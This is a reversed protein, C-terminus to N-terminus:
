LTERSAEVELHMGECSAGLSRDVGWQGRCEHDGSERNHPGLVPPSEARERGHCSPGCINRAGKAVVRGKATWLCEVASETRM